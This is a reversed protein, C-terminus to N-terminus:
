NNKKKERVRQGSVHEDQTATTTPPDNAVVHALEEQEELEEDFGEVYNLHIIILM